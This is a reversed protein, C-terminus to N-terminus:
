RSCQLQEDNFVIEVAMHTQIFLPGSNLNSYNLSFKVTKNGFLFLYGDDKFLDGFFISFVM